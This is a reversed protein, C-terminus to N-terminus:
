IAKPFNWADSAAGSRAPSAVAEATAQARDAHGAHSFVGLQARVAVGPAAMVGLFGVTFAWIAMIAFPRLISAPRSDSAAVTMASERLLRRIRFVPPM